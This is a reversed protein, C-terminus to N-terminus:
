SDSEEAKDIPLGSRERTQESEPRRCMRLYSERGTVDGRSCELTSLTQFSISGGSKLNEEPEREHLSFFFCIVCVAVTKLQTPSLSNKLSAFYTYM